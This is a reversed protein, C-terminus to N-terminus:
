TLFVFEKGKIRTLNKTIKTILKGGYRAKVNGGQEFEVIYQGTQWNADLQETNVAYVAKNKANEWLDSIHSVQRVYEPDNTPLNNIQETM